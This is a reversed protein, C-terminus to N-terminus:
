AFANIPRYYSDCRDRSALLPQWTRGCVPRYHNASEEHQGVKAAYSFLIRKEELVLSGWKLGEKAKPAVKKLNARIERLKGQAEKPAAKIYEDVTKPKTKPM